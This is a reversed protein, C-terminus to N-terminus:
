SDMLIPERLMEGSTFQNFGESNEIAKEISQRFPAMLSHHLENLLSETKEIYEQFKIPSPLTFDIDNQVMFGILTSIETRVLFSDSYLHSLEETSVKENYKIFNDRFCFFAIIHAYGPSSCVAKLDGLIEKEQRTISLFKDM